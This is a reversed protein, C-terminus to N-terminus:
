TDVDPTAEFALMHQQAKLLAGPAKVSMCDVLKQHSKEHHCLTWELASQMKLVEQKLQKNESKLNAVKLRLAANGREAMGECRRASPAARSCVLQIHLLVPKLVFLQLRFLWHSSYLELYTLDCM